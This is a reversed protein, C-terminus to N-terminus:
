KYDNGPDFNVDTALVGAGPVYNLELRTGSPDEFLISYYGPAWGGIEPEHVIKADIEVLHSYLTDIDGRNKARFCLHHLGVRKQNFREKDDPPYVRNIGLATRGGVYYVTDEGSFVLKMGFFPLLAHYFRCCDEWHSVNIMVHAMGNISIM